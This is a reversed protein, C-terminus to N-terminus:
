AAKRHRRLYRALTMVLWYMLPSLLVTYLANPLYVYVLVSLMEEHMYLVYRFFWEVLMQVLVGCLCLLMGSWFNTRLLWQILLAVVVSILLLQLATFGFVRVSYLDWLVGSIVGFAAGIRPGEFMAVCVVFLVLPTPRANLIPPFCHPANQMLTILFACVSYLIWTVYDRGLSSGVTHNTKM